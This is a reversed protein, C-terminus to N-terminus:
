CLIGTPGMTHIRIRRTISCFSSVTPINRRVPSCSRRNRRELSLATTHPLLLSICATRRMKIGKTLATDGKNDAANVDLEPIILLRSILATYGGKVAMILTTRGKKDRVNPGKGIENMLALVPEQKGKRAFQMCAEVKLRIEAPTPGEDTGIKRNNHSTPRQTIATLNALGQSINLSPCIKSPNKSGSGQSLNYNSGNLINRNKFHKIVTQVVEVTGERCAIELTKEDHGRKRLLLFVCEHRGRRIALHLANNGEVDVQARAELLLAVAELQGENVAEMLATRNEANVLDVDSKKALLLQMCYTQGARAAAMLATDLRDRANVDVDSTLRRLVGLRDGKEAARRLRYEVYTRM